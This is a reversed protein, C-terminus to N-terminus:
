ISSEEICQVCMKKSCQLCIPKKCQVCLYGTKRKLKPDCIFCYQRQNRPLTEQDSAQAEPSIKLIRFIGAKLERPLNTKQSRERLLPEYLQKALLKLFDIRQLKNTNACSQHIIYANISCMDVIRYFLAMPWRQTRRSCCYKSCKEDVADVGSKTNNYFANIEPLGNDEQRSHHMSSIM